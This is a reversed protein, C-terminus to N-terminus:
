RADITIDAVFRGAQVNFVLAKRTGNALRGYFLMDGSAFSVNEITFGQPLSATAAVPADSPVTATTNTTTATKSPGVAKYVVAGFVAMLSIFMVSGSVIQLRIMKRRVKEMAPDLPQDDQEAQEIQTM